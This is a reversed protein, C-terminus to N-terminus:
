TNSLLVPTFYITTTKQEWPYDKIEKQFYLHQTLTIQEPVLINTKGGNWIIPKVTVYNTWTSFNNVYRGCQTKFKQSVINDKYLMNMKEQM